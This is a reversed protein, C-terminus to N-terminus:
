GAVLAPTRQSVTPDFDAFNGGDQKHRRLEAAITQGLPTLKFVPNLGSGKNELLGANEFDEVCDWDDHVKLQLKPDKEDFFGKLRTGYSPKWQHGDTGFPFYGYGPHRRINIRFNQRHKDSVTGKFDVCLTEIFALLSWHDKGFKNIPVPRM